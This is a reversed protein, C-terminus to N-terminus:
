FLTVVWEEKEGEDRVRGDQVEAAPRPPGSDRTQVQGGPQGAHEKRRDLEQAAGDAGEARAQLGGAAGRSRRGLAAGANKAAEGGAAAAGAAASPPRGGRGGKPHAAEASRAGQVGAPRPRPRHGGSHAVREQKQTELMFSDKQKTLEKIKDETEIHEKELADILKQRSAVQEQLGGVSSELELVKEKLLAVQRALENKQKTVNSIDVKLSFIEGQKNTIELDLSNKQATAAKLRDERIDLDRRLKEISQTAVDLKKKSGRLEKLLITSVDAGISIVWVRNRWQTGRERCAPAYQM